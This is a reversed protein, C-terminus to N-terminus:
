TSCTGSTDADVDAAAHGGCVLHDRIGGLDRRVIEREVIQDGGDAGAVGRAGPPMAYSCSRSVCISMRPSMVEGSDIKPSGIEAGLELVPVGSVPRSGHVEAV